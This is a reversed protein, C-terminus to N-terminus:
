HPDIIVDKWHLLRIASFPCKSVWPKVLRQFREYYLPMIVADEVLIKDALGYLKMREEQDTIHRAKVVLNNFRDNRWNTPFHALCVRLFNDPDPYDAGWADLFLIQKKESLKMLYDEESEVIDLRIGVGLNEKWQEKLYEAEALYPSFSNSLLAVSPFDRGEPYGAEALLQRAQEPAYALSIGSSHGPMGPPVFGGTAPLHCGRWVIEVLTERNTALVFARRVRVDDFPPQAVDFGVFNTSLRPVLFYEGAHRQRVRNKEVQPLFQIAMLDVRDAEYMELSLNIDSLDKIFFLEVSQLNGSFRGHYEPDRILVISEGKEWSGLQFPGNTVIKSVDTWEEGHTEVVHQPVPFTGSNALLHLFYGTPEELEVSLTVDDLACISVNDPDSTDGQHFKRAGKVDYLMRAIQSETAPDLVRKWACEFDGAKVLTGDSWRVDDQLNFVYKRGGASIEWSRAVDPVIDMEPTIDVLGSFLHGIIQGFLTEYNRTPDITDPEVYYARLAHPAPPPPMAPDAVGAREWLVFGQEYAQRAQKFDFATHYTLGLKMLTRAAEDDCGRETQLTLARIYLDIAEQHAYTLRAKDGALQLYHVAKDAEQANAYHYALQVAITDKEEGYLDELARAVEGHLLRREGSGLDNYLFRQFLVHSFQFQSLINTGVKSEGRARVLRHRKELERSLRKLLKREGIQQVGAV